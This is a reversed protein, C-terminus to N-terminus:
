IQDGDRCEPGGRISLHGFANQVLGPDLGHNPSVIAASHERCDTSGLQEDSRFIEFLGMVRKM